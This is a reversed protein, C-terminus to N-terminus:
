FRMDMRIMARSDMSNVTVGILHFSPIASAGSKETRALEKGSASKWIEILPQRGALLAGVFTSPVKKSSGSWGLGIASCCEACGQGKQGSLCIGLVKSGM